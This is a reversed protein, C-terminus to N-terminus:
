NKNPTLQCSLSVVNGIEEASVEFKIGNLKISTPKGEVASNVANSLQVRQNETKTQAGYHGFAVCRIMADTADTPSSLFSIIGSNNKGISLVVNKLKTKAIWAVGNETQEWSIVKFINEAETVFKKLKDPEYAASAFTPLVIFVCGIISKKM